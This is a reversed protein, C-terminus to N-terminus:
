SSSSYHETHRYEDIFVIIVPVVFKKLLSSYITTFKWVTRQPCSYSVFHMAWNQTLSPNNTWRFVVFYVSYRLNDGRITATLHGKM